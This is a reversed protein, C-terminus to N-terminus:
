KTLMWATGSGPTCQLAPRLAQWELYSDLLLVPLGGVCPPQPLFDPGAPLLPPLHHETTWPLKPGGLHTWDMM